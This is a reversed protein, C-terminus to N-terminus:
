LGTLILVGGVDTLETKLVKMSMGPADAKKSTMGFRGGKPRTLFRSNGRMTDDQACRLVEGRRRKPYGAGARWPPSAKKVTPTERMSDAKTARLTAGPQTRLWRSFPAISQPKAARKQNQPHGM